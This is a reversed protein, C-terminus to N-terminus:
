SFRMCLEGELNSLLADGNHIAQLLERNVSHVLMWHTSFDFLCHKNSIAHILQPEIRGSIAISDRQWADFLIHDIVDNFSHKKAVIQVATSIGGPKLYYVYWGIVEQKSDYVAMKRLTGLRNKRSMEDLLWNLSRNDYEPWLSRGGSFESLHFLLEETDLEKASVKPEPLSFRGPMKRALVGDITNCVPGAASALPKWLGLKQALSTLYRSPRLVRTWYMSYLLATSGGLAEWLKLSVDNAEDTLSLEQPGSLFTKLLRVGAGTARSRPDVIFQSSLAVSITQGNLSMRRPMVGLFGTVKGNVEEHVFSPLAEDCWPNKFFIREFYDTYSQLLEPSLTQKVSTEPTSFVRQHLDAVQPIDDEVFPRIQSM